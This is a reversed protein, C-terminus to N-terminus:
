FQTAWSADLASVTYVCVVTHTHTHATHIMGPVAGTEAASAEIAAKDDRDLEADFMGELEKEREQTHIACYCLVAGRKTLSCPLTV